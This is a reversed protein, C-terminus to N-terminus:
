LALHLARVCHFGAVANAPGVGVLACQAGHAVLDALLEIVKRAAIQQFGDLRALNNRMDALMQRHAALNDNEVVVLLATSEIREQKVLPGDFVL